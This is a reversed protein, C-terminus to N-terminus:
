HVIGDKCEIDFLVVEYKSKKGEAIYYNRKELMEEKDKYFHSWGDANSSLKKEFKNEVLEIIDFEAQMERCYFVNSVYTIGASHDTICIVQYGVRDNDFEQSYITNQESILLIVLLLFLIKKMTQYSNTIKTERTKTNHLTTALM